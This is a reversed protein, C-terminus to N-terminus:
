ARAKAEQERLLRDAERPPIGSQILLGLRRDRAEAIGEERDRQEQADAAAEQRQATVAVVAARYEGSEKFVATAKEDIHLRYQVQNARLTPLDTPIQIWRGDRYVRLPSILRLVEAIEEPSYSPVVGQVDEPTSPAPWKLKATWYDAAQTPTNM